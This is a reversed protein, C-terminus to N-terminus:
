SPCLVTYILVNTAGENSGAISMTAAQEVDKSYPVLGDLIFLLQQIINCQLVEMMFECNQTGWTFVNFFSQEFLDSLVQKERTTRVKLWAALVKFFYFCFIIIFDM